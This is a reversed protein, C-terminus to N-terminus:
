KNNENDQKIEKKKAYREKGRQREAERYEELTQFKPKRGRTLIEKGEKNKYYRDLIQKIQAKKSEEETAYKRPRGRKNNKIPNEM